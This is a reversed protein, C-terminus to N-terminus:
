SMPIWSYMRCPARVSPHEPQRERGLVTVEV